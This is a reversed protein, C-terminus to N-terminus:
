EDAAVKQMVGAAGTLHRRVAWLANKEDAHFFRLLVLLLPYALALAAAVLLQQWLTAPAALRYAAMIALACGSALFLRRYEFHFAHVKQAQWFSLVFM